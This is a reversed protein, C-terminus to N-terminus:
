NKEASSGEPFCELATPDAEAMARALEASSENLRKTESRVEKLLAASDSCFLAASGEDDISVRTAGARGSLIQVDGSWGPTAEMVARTSGRRRVLVNLIAAWTVGGGQCRKAEFLTLTSPSNAEATVTFCQPNGSTGEASPEASAQVQNPRKQCAFCLFACSLGALRRKKMAPM